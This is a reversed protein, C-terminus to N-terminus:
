KPVFTKTVGDITVVLEGNSNFRLMGRIDDILQSLIPYDTSDEVSQNLDTLISKNVTYSTPSSTIQERKESVTCSVEFELLYKGALNTCDEPLDFEYIAESRNVLKGSVFKVVNGPKILNMKIAFDSANEIPSANVVTEKIVLQVYINNTSKDTNFFYMNPATIAGTKVNLTILYDRNINTAM